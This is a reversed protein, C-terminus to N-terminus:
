RAKDVMEVRITNPNGDVGVSITINPNKGIWYNGNRNCMGTKKYGNKELCSDIQSPDTTGSFIVQYILAPNPGSVNSYHFSYANGVRLM